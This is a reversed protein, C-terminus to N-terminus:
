SITVRNPLAAPARADVVLQVGHHLLRRVATRHLAPGAHEARHDAQGGGADRGAHRDLPRQDPAALAAGVVRVGVLREACSGYSSVQVTVVASPVSRCTSITSGASPRSSSASKASRTNPAGRARASRPRRGRSRGRCPCTGSGAGPASGGRRSGSPRRRGARAVAAGAPQLGALVVQGVSPSASRATSSVVTGSPGTTSTPWEIPPMVMMANASSYGSSNPSRTTPTTSIAM